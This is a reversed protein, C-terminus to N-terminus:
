SMSSDDKAIALLVKKVISKLGEREEKDGETFVESLIFDADVYAREDNKAHKYGMFGSTLLVLPVQEEEWFAEAPVFVTKNQVLITRFWEPEDGDIVLAVIEGEGAM